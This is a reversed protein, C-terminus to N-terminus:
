ALLGTESLFSRIPDLFSEPKELGMMHGADPIVALRADPIRDALYRGYKEPTLRDESASIVLTPVPITGVRDMVDFRDCASLDSHTVLPDTRFFIERVRDYEAKPPHPGFSWRCIQDIAQRPDDSALGELIAPAVRLRAGTGVLIAASLWDPHRLALTQAIAGGLSHGVLAVRGLSLTEAFREILDAWAGVDDRAAGGSRGHGPLDLAYVSIGPLRRLVPPWTTHDCGSGHILILSGESPHPSEEYFLDAGDISVFPM